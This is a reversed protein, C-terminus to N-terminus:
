CRSCRMARELCEDKVGSAEIARIVVDRANGGLLPLQRAIFRRHEHDTIIRRAADRVADSYAPKQM